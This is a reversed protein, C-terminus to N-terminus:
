CLLQEEETDRPQLDTVPITPKPSSGVMEGSGNYGQDSRDLSASRRWALHVLIAGAMVQVPVETRLATWIDDM